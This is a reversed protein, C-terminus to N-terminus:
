TAQFRVHNNEVDYGLRKIANGAHVKATVVNHAMDSVGICSAVRYRNVTVVTRPITREM